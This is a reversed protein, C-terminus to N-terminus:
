SGAGLEGEPSGSQEFAIASEAAFRRQMVDFAPPHSDILIFRRGTLLAAAGTTGSGAFFDLVTAGPRSSALLVRRLIGLPKQTPYGLKEKGTPSVITHWWTDTPLKGRATKEPGALEPAMYPIRDIADRDFVHSGARKAYLLINDHKAPWRDKPRGGYDYAWIIENLFNERGFLADLLVKVYHVERYDLHVYLSGDARLVRHAHALRPALFAEYDSFSDGFSLAGLRETKYRHGGFGIRDGEDHRATRLQERRQRKGTNFPPDIYILDVSEDAMRELAVLNDSLCVIGRQTDDLALPISPSV